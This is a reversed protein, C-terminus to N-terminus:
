WQQPAPLAVQGCPQEVERGMGICCYLRLATLAATGYRGKDPVITLAITITERGATPRTEGKDTSVHFGSSLPARTASSTLGGEFAGLSGANPDVPSGPQWCRDAGDQTTWRVSPLARV